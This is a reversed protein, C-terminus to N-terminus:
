HKDELEQEFVSTIMQQIDVPEGEPLNRFETLKQPPTESKIEKREPGTSQVVSTPVILGAENIETSSLSPERSYNPVVEIKSESEPFQLGTVREGM